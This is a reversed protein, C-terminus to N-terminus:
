CEGYIQAINPNTCSAMIYAERALEEQAGRIDGGNAEMKKLVVVEDQLLM